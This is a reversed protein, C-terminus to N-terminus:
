IWCRKCLVLRLAKSFLVLPKSSHAYQDSLSAPFIGDKSSNGIMTLARKWPLFGFKVEYGVKKAACRIRDAIHGQPVGNKDLFFLPPFKKTIDTTVIDLEQGSVAFSFSFFLAAITSRMM